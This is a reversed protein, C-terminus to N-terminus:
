KLKEILPLANDLENIRFIDKNFVFVRYVIDGVSKYNPMDNQWFEINNDELLNMVNTAKQKSRTLVAVHHHKIKYVHKRYFNIADNKDPSSFTPARKKGREIYSVEWNGNNLGLVYVDDSTPGGVGDIYFQNFGETIFEDYLQKLEIGM